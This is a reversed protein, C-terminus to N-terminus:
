QNYIRSSPKPAPFSNRLKPKVAAAAQEAEVRGEGIEEKIGEAGADIQAEVTKIEIETDDQSFVSRDNTDFVKIPYGNYNKVAQRIKKWNLDDKHVGAKKNIFAVDDETMKYEEVPKEEELQLTQAQNPSVEVYFGSGIWGAKIPQDVVTVPTGVPVEPFLKVIDEPYMRMCGSSVRRGIGYPKNTGHILYQPWGLYLAHTGLPNEPGPPVSVPLNPDEDRMRKTPRWTPGDKKRSIKTTGQPTQLGDRGISIPYTTPAKGPTKFHYLRMEALNIVIGKRPAEPLIHRMPLIIREGAGPIWADLGPNASRLEIFGLGNHRALHILTDEFAANHIVQEGIYDKEYTKAQASLVPLAILMLLAIFIRM